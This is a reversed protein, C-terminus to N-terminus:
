YNERMALCYRSYLASDSANNVAAVLQMLYTLSSNNLRGQLAEQVASYLNDNIFIIIIINVTVLNCTILTSVGTGTTLIKFTVHGECTVGTKYRDGVLLPWCHM